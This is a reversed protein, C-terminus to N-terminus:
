PEGPFLRVHRPCANPLCPPFSSSSRNAANPDTKIPSHTTAFTRGVATDLYTLTGRSKGPTVEGIGVTNAEMM